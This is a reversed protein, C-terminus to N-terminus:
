KCAKQNQRTTTKTASFNAKSVKPKSVKTVVKTMQVNYYKCLEGLVTLRFRPALGKEIRSLFQRSIGVAKAVTQLSEKCEQRLEYLNNGIILLAAKLKKQFAKTEFPKKKKM